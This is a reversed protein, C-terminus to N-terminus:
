NQNVKRFCGNATTCAPLGYQSRYVALDSEARPDDYADVIAVTQASSGSSTLKYASRLDAPGYGSPATPANTTTDTRVLADCHAFGPPADACVRMANTGPVPGPKDSAASAPPVGGVLLALLGLAGLLHVLRKM